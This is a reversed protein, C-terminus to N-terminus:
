QHPTVLTDGNNQVGQKKAYVRFETDFYHRGAIYEGMVLFEEPTKVMGVHRYIETGELDIFSLTPTLFVRRQESFIKAPLVIGDFDKIEVDGHIDVAISLFRERYWEQVEKQNFVQKQM